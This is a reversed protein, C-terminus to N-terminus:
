TNELALDIAHTMNIVGQDVGRPHHFIYQTSDIFAAGAEVLSKCHDNTITRGEVLCPKSTANSWLKTLALTLPATQKNMPLSIFDYGANIAHEVSSKIPRQLRLGVIADDGLQDRAAEAAKHSTVIVGDAGLEKALTINHRVIFVMGQSQLQQTLSIALDKIEDINKPTAYEFVHMNKEYKVGHNLTFCIKHLTAAFSHDIYRNAKIKIYLGCPPAGKKHTTETM